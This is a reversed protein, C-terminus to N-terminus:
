HKRLERMLREIASQTWGERQAAKAAAYEANRGHAKAQHYSQLIRDTM